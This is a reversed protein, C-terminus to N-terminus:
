PVLTSFIGLPNHTRAVSVIFGFVALAALWARFRVVQARGKWFAVLGLGIYVALLVLKVTLWGNVFPYQRMITTLMLAATLLVTDITYSLYRVPAAKAWSVGAFLLLGRLFFLSGSVTVAAIHVFRIELYFESM